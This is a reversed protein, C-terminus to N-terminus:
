LASGTITAALSPWTGLDTFPGVDLTPAGLLPALGGPGLPRHLTARHLVDLVSPGHAGAFAYAFWVANFRHARELGPKDAFDAVRPWPDGAATELLLAGDVALRRPDSEAATLFAARHGAGVLDLLGGIAHPVPRTLIQDPLLVATAPGWWAACSLVAGTSEPLKADQSCLALPLGLDACRATLHRATAERGPGLVAVVRLREAHQALLDLTHDLAVRGPGTPVLEKAIPLGLRSGTGACPLVVTDRGGSM